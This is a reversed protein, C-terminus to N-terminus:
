NNHQDYCEKNDPFPLIFFIYRGIINNVSNTRITRKKFILLISKTTMKIIM